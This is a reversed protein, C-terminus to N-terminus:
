SLLNNIIADAPTRYQLGATGDSPGAESSYHPAEIAIASRNVSYPFFISSKKTLNTIEGCAIALDSPADVDKLSYMNLVSFMLGPNIPRETPVTPFPAFRGLHVGRSAHGASAFDGSARLMVFRIARSKNKRSMLSAPSWLVLGDVSVSSDSSAASINTIQLFEVRAIDLYRPLRRSLAPVSKL